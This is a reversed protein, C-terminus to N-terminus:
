NLFNSYKTLAFKRRSVLSMIVTPLQVLEAVSFTQLLTTFRRVTKIELLPAVLPELILLWFLVMRFLHLLTLNRTKNLWYRKLRLSFESICHEDNSRRVKYIVGCITTGTKMARPPVSMSSETLAKNRICNDYNFGGLPLTKIYDLEM